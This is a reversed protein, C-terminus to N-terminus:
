LVIIAVIVNYWSDWPIMTAKITVTQDIQGTQHVCNLVACNTLTAGIFYSISQKLVEDLVTVIVHAL